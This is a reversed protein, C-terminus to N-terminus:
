RTVRYLAVVPVGDADEYSGLLYDRGVDHVRVNGVLISEGLVKGQVDMAIVKTRTRGPAPVTLWIVGQTDANLGSYFPMLEPIPAALLRTRAEERVVRNYRAVQADVAAVWDDRTPKRPLIPVAISRERGAFDIHRVSPETGVGAVVGESMAALMAFPGLPAPDAGLRGVVRILQTLAIPALATLSDAPRRGLAVAGPVM